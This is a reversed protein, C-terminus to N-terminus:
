RDAGVGAVLEVTVGCLVAALSAGCGGPGCGPCTTTTTGREYSRSPLRCLASRVACFASVRSVVVVFRIPLARRERTGPGQDGTM